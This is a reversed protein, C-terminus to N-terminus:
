RCASNTPESFNINSLSRLTAVTSSFFKATIFTGIHLAILIKNLVRHNFFLLFSLTLMNWVRFVWKNGCIELIGANSCEFCRSSVHLFLGWHFSNMTTWKTTFDPIRLLKPGRWWLIVVLIMLKSLYWWLLLVEHSCIAVLALENRIWYILLVLMLHINQMRLTNQSLLLHKKAVLRLTYIM